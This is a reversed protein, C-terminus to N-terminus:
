RRSFVIAYSDSLDSPMVRVKTGDALERAKDLAEPLDDGSVWVDVRASDGRGVASIHTRDDCVATVGIAKHRPNSERM